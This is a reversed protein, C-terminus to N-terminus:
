KTASGPFNNLDVAEKEDDISAEVNTQNMAHLLEEIQEASMGIGLASQGGLAIALFVKRLLNRFSM